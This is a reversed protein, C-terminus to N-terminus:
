GSSVKSAAKASAMAAQKFKASTRIDEKLDIGKRLRAQKTREGAPMGREELNSGFARSSIAEEDNEECWMEYATYLLGVECSVGRSLWCNDRIFASVNDQTDQYSETASTVATPPKLGIRQWEECGRVMWVLIGPYEQILKNKLDPDKEKQGKVMKEKDNFTVLFPLLIIRRWIAFDSGKIKPKHNTAFWLKFKPVFSFFEKYLLRVTMEDGGTAQKVLAEALHKDHETEVVSVLRAGVLRAVDNSPGNNKNSVWTDAASREVYEALVAKITELLVSKGNSGAGHMIFVVQETTLGTLSYGIARQVFGVMDADNDFIELIFKEWLPCTARPDYDTGCIKSILDSQEHPRLEGTRLDVTGNLCNLLLPDKDLDNAKKHLYSKAQILMGNIRSSNGCSIAWKLRKIRRKTNPEVRAAEILVASIDHARKQAGVNELDPAYRRGDWIHWGNGLVYRLDHGYKEVLFLANGIDNAVYEGPQRSGDNDEEPDDDSQDRADGQRFPVVNKVPETATRVPEASTVIDRLEEQTHGADLWDCIDGKYPLEPLNIVYVAAAVSLLARVTDAAARRGPEDNDPLVAVTRGCFYEAIQPWNKAASGAGEPATTAVFGISHLRDACKEGETVFVIRGPEALMEPLRYPLRKVGAMVGKGEIWGGRGNARAQRFTKDGNEQEFRKIRYCQEGHENFYDYEAILRGLTTIQTQPMEIRLEKIAWEAADALNAMGLKHRILALTGGGAGNEWDRWTGRFDGAISVRLSGNSGFRLEDKSSLHKNPEGCLRRAVAEIHAAWDFETSRM